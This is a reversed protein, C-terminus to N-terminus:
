YRREEVQPAIQDFTKSGSSVDSKKFSFLYRDAARSGDMLSMVFNHELPEGFGGGAAAIGQQAMGLAGQVMGVASQAIAKGYVEELSNSTGSTAEAAEKAIEHQALNLAQQVLALAQQPTQAEHAAKEVEAVAKDIAERAADASQADHPNTSHSVHTTHRVTVQPPVASPAAPAAPVAPVAPPAPPEKEAGAQEEPAPPAAPAHPPAPAPPPPPPTLGPMVRITHWASAAGSPAEVVLLIRETPAVSTLRHGYRGIAEILTKRLTEVKRADYRPQDESAFALSSAGYKGGGMLSTGYRGAGMGVAGGAIANHPIPDNSAQPNANKEWLDPEGSDAEKPTDEKKVEMREMVPFNVPIRFIAGVTPIYDFRIKGEFPSPTFVGPASYWDGLGSRDLSEELVKSMTQLEKDRAARVDSAPAAADKEASAACLALGVGCATLLGAIWRTWKRNM